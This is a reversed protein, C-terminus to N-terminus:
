MVIGIDHLTFLYVYSLCGSTNLIDLDDFYEEVHTDSSKGCVGFIFLRKGVVVAIHGERSHLLSACSVHTWFMCIRLLYTGMLARFVFLKDGVTMCNHSDLPVPLTGQIDPESWTRAATSNPSLCALLEYRIDRACNM